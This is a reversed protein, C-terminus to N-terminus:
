QFLMSLIDGGICVDTTHLELPLKNHFSFYIGILLVKWKIVKTDKCNWSTGELQSINLPSRLISQYTIYWFHTM